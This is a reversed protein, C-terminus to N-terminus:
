DGGDAPAGLMAAIPVGQAVVLAILLLSLLRNVETKEEAKQRRAEAKQSRGTM